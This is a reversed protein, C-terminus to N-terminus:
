FIDEKKIEDKLCYENNDDINFELNVITGDFVKNFLQYHSNEGRQYWYGDASLIQIKGKNLELFKRILSLGLGGPTDGKKTTHGEQIAWQIADEASLKKGLFSEVNVKITKGLDVITFDLRKNAPYFQGCSFIDTTGGHIVANNFIEFISENIKKRLANSMRPLVSRSLLENDLYVKFLKEESSKFRKYKITTGYYDEIKEGGFNSLFHNKSFIKEVQPQLNVLRVDNLDSQARNLISGLVALLNADFWSTDSFDLVLEDFIMKKSFHYLDLLPPYGEFNSKIVQPFKFTKM